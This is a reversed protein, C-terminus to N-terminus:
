IPIYKKHYELKNEHLKVVARLMLTQLDILNDLFLIYVKFNFLFSKDCHLIVNDCGHVVRKAIVTLQGSQDMIINNFVKELKKNSNLM